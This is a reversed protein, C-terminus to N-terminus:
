ASLGWPISVAERRLSGAAQGTHVSLVILLPPPRRARRESTTSLKGGGAGGTGGSFARVSASRMEASNLVVPTAVFGALQAM